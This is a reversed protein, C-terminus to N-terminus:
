CYRAAGRHRFARGHDDGAVAVGGAALGLDLQPVRDGNQLLAAVRHDDGLRRGVFVEVIHEDFAALIGDSRQDAGGDVGLEVRGLPAGAQEAVAFARWPRDEGVGDM